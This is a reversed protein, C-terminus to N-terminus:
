LIFNLRGHDIFPFSAGNCDKFTVKVRALTQITALFIIEPKKEGKHSVRKEITISLIQLFCM